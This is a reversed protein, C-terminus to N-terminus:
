RRKRILLEIIDEWGNEAASHIFSRMFDKSKINVGKEILAKVVAEQKKEFAVELISKDLGDKLNIDAGNKILLQAIETHGKVVAVWLPQKLELAATVDAIVSAWDNNGSKEVKSQKINVYAGKSILYKVIEIHGNDVAGWLPQDDYDITQGSDDDESKKTKPERINVKAGKLILYKVIEMNGNTAAFYLPTRQYYTRTDIPEGTYIIHKVKQLNGKRAARHLQTRGAPMLKFFIGFVLSGILSAKFITLMIFANSVEEGCITCYETDEAPDDYGRNVVIKPDPEFKECDECYYSNFYNFIDTSLLASTVKSDCVHCLMTEQGHSRYYRECTECYHSDTLLEYDMPLYGLFCCCNVVFVLVFVSYCGQLNEKTKFKKRMVYHNVISFGTM